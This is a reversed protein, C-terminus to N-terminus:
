PSSIEHPHNIPARSRDLLAEIGGQRYRNLWKYGTKRSIRYAHCLASMNVAGELAKIIFEERQSMPTTEKWPM